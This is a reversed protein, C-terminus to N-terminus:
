TPVPMINALRDDLTLSPSHCPLTASIECKRFVSLTKLSCLIAHSTRSSMIKLFQKKKKKQCFGKLLHKPGRQIQPKTFKIIIDWFRLQCLGTPDPAVMRVWAKSGSSRIPVCGGQRTPQNWGFQGRQERRGHSDCGYM